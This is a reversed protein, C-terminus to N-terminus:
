GQLAIGKLLEVDGTIRLGNNNGAVITNGTANRVKLCAYVEANNGASDPISVLDWFVSFKDRSKEGATGANTTDEEYGLFNYNAYDLSPAKNTGTYDGGSLSTFETTMSYVIDQSFNTADSEQVVILMKVRGSQFVDTNALDSGTNGIHVTLLVLDDAANGASTWDAGLANAGYNFGTRFAGGYFEIGEIPSNAIPRQAHTAAGTKPTLNLGDSKKILVSNLGVSTTGQIAEDARITGSSHLQTEPDTKNIGVRGANTGNEKITIIEKYTGGTNAFHLKFKDTGVHLKAKDNAGGNHKLELQSGNSEIVTSNSFTKAGGITQTGTTYVGNTVTDANGTLAGTFAGEFAAAKVTALAYGTGATNVTSTPEVQLDKFFIFKGSDSADRFIGAWKQTGAGAGGDDINYTGYLGVDVSDAGEATQGTALSLMSDGTAVTTSSITTTTGSVTLGGGIVVNGSTDVTVHTNTGEGIRFKDGDDGRAQLKWHVADNKIEVAPNSGSGADEVLLAAGTGKLHLLDDPNTEGIGVKGSSAITMRAANNDQFILKNAGDGHNGSTVSMRYKGGNTGTNDITFSTNVGSGTIKIGGLNTDDKVELAKDPDNLGIGVMGNTHIRMREATADTGDIKTFFQMSSTGTGDGGGSKLILDGGDTDNTADTTATGASITLSKGATGAATADVTITSASGNGLTISSSDVALIGRLKLTDGADAMMNITEDSTGGSSELANLRTLLNANNVDEDTYSSAITMTNANNRTLTINSGNQIKIDQDGSGAGGETLRLLVDSGSTVFSSTYTNQTNTDTITINKKTTDTGDNASSVGTGTFNLKAAQPTLETGDNYVDVGGGGATSSWEFDGGANLALVQGNTGLDKLRTLAIHYDQNAPPNNRSRYIGQSLQSFNWDGHLTPKDICHIEAGKNKTTNPGYLRGEPQIVLKNCTLIAGETLKFYKGTSAAIVLKNFKSIFKKTATNGWRFNGTTIYNGNFPMESGNTDAPTIELTTNGWDFTDSQAHIAGIIQFHKNFDASTKSSPSIRCTQDTTLTQLQVYTYNNTGAPTVAVPSFTVSSNTQSAFTMFPYVGDELKIATSANVKNFAFTHKKITGVDKFIGYEPTDPFDHHIYVGSVGAGYFTTKGGVADAITNSKKVTLKKTQLNANLHGFVLDQGFNAEIKVEDFSHAANAITATTIHCDVTANSDFIITDQDVPTTNGSWNTATAFTNENSTTGGIWTRDAM